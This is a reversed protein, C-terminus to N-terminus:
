SGKSVRRAVTRVQAIVMAAYEIKDLTSGEPESPIVAGPRQRGAGSDAGAADTVEMKVLERCGARRGRLLCIWMTRCM